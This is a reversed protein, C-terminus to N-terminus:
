PKVLQLNGEGDWVLVEREDSEQEAQSGSQKLVRRQSNSDHDLYPLLIDPRFGCPAAQGVTQRM